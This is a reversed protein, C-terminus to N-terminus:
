SNPVALNTLVGPLNCSSPLSAWGLSIIGWGCPSLLRSIPSGSHTKSPQPYHAPLFPTTTRNKPSHSDIDALRTEGQRTRQLHIQTIVRDTM